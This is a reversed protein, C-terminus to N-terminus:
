SENAQIKRGLGILRYVVGGSLVAIDEASFHKQITDDFLITADPPFEEDGDWLVLQICIQPFVSFQMGFDGNSVPTAGMM